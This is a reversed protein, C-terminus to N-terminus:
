DRLAAARGEGRREHIGRNVLVPARFPGRRRLRGLVQNIVGYM